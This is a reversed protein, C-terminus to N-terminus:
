VNWETPIDLYGIEDRESVIMIKHTNEKRHYNILHDHSHISFSLFYKGRLFPLDKITACVKGEGSIADIQQGSLQTNSGFCVNGDQDAISFGFVPNELRRDAKYSVELAMVDHLVFQDKDNGEGDMIRIGTIQAERSGWERKALPEGQRHLGMRLYDDAVERPNGWEVISGQDLLLVRDCVKVVTEMDHSVFLLTKGARKFESIKALCKKRFSADGVALVEDILLIDPDAIVAVAFGLRVYMGSSYHKVPVDMFEDLESFQVIEDYREEIERRTLGLISGNLFVNEKGSLDPHFGAGLELLSSIRGEVTISGSTPSMTKALISLLTSKGAGNAGIIGVTEGANVHFSIDRLAWFDEVDYRRKFLNLLFSKVSREREHRLLFKKSVGDVSVVNM